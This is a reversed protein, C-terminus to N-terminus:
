ASAFSASGVADVAPKPSPGPPYSVYILIELTTYPYGPITTIRVTISPHRPSPRIYRLRNLHRFDSNNLDGFAFPRSSTATAMWEDM